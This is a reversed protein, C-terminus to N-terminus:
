MRTRKQLEKAALKHSPQSCGLGERQLAVALTSQLQEKEDFHVVAEEHARHLLYPYPRRNMLGCQELLINQLLSVQAPKGAVWAPIEVRVIYPNDPRGVNLYFFHVRLSGEYHISSTSHLELIASREGAGLVKEMLLTDPLDKVDGAKGREAAYIGLMTTILTARSRDIYGALIIDRRSLEELLLRYRDFAAAFVRGQRPEHFLELPGDRLAAAPLKGSAQWDQL